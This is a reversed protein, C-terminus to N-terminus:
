EVGAQRLWAITRHWAEDADVRDYTPGSSDYFRPGADPFYVIEVIKGADHARAQAAFVDAQSIYPDAGGYLGLLPCKLSKAYHIPGHPQTANTPGSVPGYFAVAARLRPEHEAFLWADRGGRGFGITGMRTKDGSHATAWDITSGLASLLTADPAKLIVQRMIAAADNMTELDALWAYLDPAVALYGLTALQRCVSKIFPQIGFIGEIVIVTPLTGARRPRAFYGPLRAGSVTILTDGALVDTRDTETARAETAAASLMLGALPGTTMLRRRTIGEM